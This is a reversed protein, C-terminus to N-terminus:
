KKIGLAYVKWKSYKPRYKACRLFFDEGPTFERKVGPSTRLPPCQIVVQGNCLSEASM